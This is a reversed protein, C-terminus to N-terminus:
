FPTIGLKNEYKLSVDILRNNIVQIPANTKTMANNEIRGETFSIVTRMRIIM